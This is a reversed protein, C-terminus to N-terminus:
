YPKRRKIAYLALASFSAVVLLIPVLEPVIFGPKTPPVKTDFKGESMTTEGLAYVLMRPDSSTFTITFSQHTDTLPGGGLFPKMAWYITDTASLPVSLAYSLHDKLSAVTYCAGETTGSPPVKASNDTVGTFNTMKNFSVSDGTWNVVVDGTLGNWCDETMVLLVHPQNTPDGAGEVWIDFVAPSAVMVPWIDPGLRITGTANGAFAFSVTALVVTIALLSLIPKKM